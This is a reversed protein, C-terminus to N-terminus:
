YWEDSELADRVEEPSMDSNTIGYITMSIVILILLALM